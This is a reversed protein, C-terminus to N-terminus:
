ASQAAREEAGLRDLLDARWELAYALCNQCSAHTCGPRRPSRRANLSWAMSDSSALCAASSLLGGIKVGFAHLKIGDEHLWRLLHGIRMTAQRRCVSGLGVVPLVRLDVGVRAYQAVHAIYDGMVWGQLVPAWRIEPALERLRLFNEITRRQHEEVTLGTKVRIAPECMWDMVAAFQLNGIESAYRRVEDAYREPEITWRGHLSLETFGGSDLAWAGRARPLARRNALRRRSIFLPVDTRALWSPDHTGLFFKM